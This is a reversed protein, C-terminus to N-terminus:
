FFMLALFYYLMYDVSECIQLFIVRLTEIAEDTMM